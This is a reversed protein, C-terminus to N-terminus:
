STPNYLRRKKRIKKNLYFGLFSLFTLSLSSTTSLFLWNKEIFIAISLAKTEALIKALLFSITSAPLAVSIFILLFVPIDSRHKFGAILGGLSICAIISCMLFCLFYATNQNFILPFVKIFEQGLSAMVSIGVIFIALLVFTEKKRFLNKMIYLNKLIKQYEAM